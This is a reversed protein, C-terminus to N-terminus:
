LDEGGQFGKKKKERIEKVKSDSIMGVQKLSKGLTERGIQM